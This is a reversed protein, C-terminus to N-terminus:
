EQGDIAEVLVPGLDPLLVTAYEEFDKSYRVFMKDSGWGLLGAVRERRKACGWVGRKVMRLRATVAATRRFSHPSGGLKKPALVGLRKWEKGGLAKMVRGQKEGVPYLKVGSGEAMRKDRGVRLAFGRGEVGGVLESNEFAVKRVGVSLLGEVVARETVNLRMVDSKLLVMAQQEGALMPNKKKWVRGEVKARNRLARYEEGTVSVGLGHVVRWTPCLLKAYVASLYSLATKAKVKRIFILMRIFEDLCKVSAMHLSDPIWRLFSAVGPSSVDPASWEPVPDSLYLFLWQGFCVHM